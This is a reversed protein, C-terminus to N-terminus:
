ANFTASCLEDLAFRVKLDRMIRSMRKDYNRLTMAYGIQPGLEHDAGVVHPELDRQDLPARPDIKPYM